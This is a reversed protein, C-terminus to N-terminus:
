IKKKLDLGYKKLISIAMSQKHVEDAGDWIRAGREHQYLNALMTEDSLGKAGHVQIARDLVRVVM